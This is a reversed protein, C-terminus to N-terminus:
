TNPRSIFDKYHEVSIHGLRLTDLAQPTQVADDELRVKRDKKRQLFAFLDPDPSLPELYQKYNNQMWQILSIQGKKYIQAKINKPGIIMSSMAPLVDRFEVNYLEGSTSMQTADRIAPQRSMSATRASRVVNIKYKSLLRVFKMQMREPYQAHHLCYSCTLKLRRRKLEQLDMDRERRSKREVSRIHQNLWGIQTTYESNYMELFEISRQSLVGIPAPTVVISYLFDEVCLVKRSHVDLKNWLKTWERVCDLKRSREELDMIQVYNELIVAIFVNILILVNFITYSTFYVVALATSM